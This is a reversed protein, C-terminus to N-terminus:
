VPKWSVSWRVRLHPCFSMQLPSRHLPTTSFLPEPLIPFDVEDKKDGGIRCTQVIKLSKKKRRGALSASIPCIESCFDAHGKFERSWGSSPLGPQVGHRILKCVLLACHINRLSNEVTLSCSIVWSGRSLRGMRSVNCCSCWRWKSRIVKAFWYKLVESKSDFCRKSSSLPPLIHELCATPNEPLARPLPLPTPHSPCLAPKPLNLKLQTAVWFGSFVFACAADHHHFIVSPWNVPCLMLQKISGKLFLVHMGWM